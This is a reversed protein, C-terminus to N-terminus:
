RQEVRPLSSDHNFMDEDKGLYIYADILGQVFAFFLKTAARGRIQAKNIAARSCIQRLVLIVKVIRRGGHAISFATVDAAIVAADTNNWYLERELKCILKRPPIGIQHLFSYDIDRLDGHGERICNQQYQM